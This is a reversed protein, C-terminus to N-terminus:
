GIKRTRVMELDKDFHMPGEEILAGREMRRELTNIYQSARRNAKWAIAQLVSAQRIEEQTIQRATLTTVRAPGKRKPRSEISRGSAKEDAAKNRANEM